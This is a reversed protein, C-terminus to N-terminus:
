FDSIRIDFDSVFDFNLLEFLVFLSFINSNPANPNTKFNPNRAEFKSREMSLRSAM